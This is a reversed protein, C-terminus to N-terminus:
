FLAIEASGGRESWGRSTGEVSVRLIMCGGWIKTRTWDGSFFLVSPSCVFEAHVALRRDYLQHTGGWPFLGQRFPAPSGGLPCFGFLEGRSDAM